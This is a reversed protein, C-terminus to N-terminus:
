RPAGRGTPWGGVIPAYSYALLSVGGGSVPVRVTLVVCAVGPLATLTVACPPLPSRAAYTPSYSTLLGSLPPANCPLQCYKVPPCTTGGVPTVLAMSVNVIGVLNPVYLKRNKLRPLAWCRRATLGSITTCAADGGGTFQTVPGSTPFTNIM